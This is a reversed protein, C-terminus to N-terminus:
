SRAIKRRRSRIVLLVTILLGGILSVPVIIKWPAIGNDRTQSKGLNNVEKELKEIESKHLQYSNSQYTNTSKAFDKIEQLKQNLESVKQGKKVIARLENILKDLVLNSETQGVEQNIEEELRTIENTDSTNKLQELKNILTENPKGTKDTLKDIKEKIRHAVQIKYDTSNLTILKAKLKDIETKNDQYDKEGEYAEIQKLIPALESYTNKTKAENILQILQNTDLKPKKPTSPANNEEDERKRKDGKKGSEKNKAERKTSIDALVQIKIDIIEPVTKTYELM